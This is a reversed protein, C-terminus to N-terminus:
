FHKRFSDLRLSFIRFIISDLFKLNVNRDFVHPWFGCLIKGREEESVVFFLRSDYSFGDSTYNVWIYPGDVAIRLFIAGEEKRLVTSEIDYTDNGLGITLVDNGFGKRTHYFIVTILIIKDPTSQIYWICSPEKYGYKPLTYTLNYPSGGHINLLTEGCFDSIFLFWLWLLLTNASKLVALM